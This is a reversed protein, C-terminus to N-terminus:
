NDIPYTEGHKLWHDRFKQPLREFVKVMRSFEEAEDIRSFDGDILVFATPHIGAVAAMARIKDLDFVDRGSNDAGMASQHPDDPAMFFASPHIRYAKALRFLDPISPSNQGHEWKNVTQPVINLEAAAQKLTLGARKRYEQLYAHSEM